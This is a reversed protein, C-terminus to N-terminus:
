YYMHINIRALCYRVERNIHVTADRRGYRHRISRRPTSTPAISCRSAPVGNTPSKCNAPRRPYPRTVARMSRLFRCRGPRRPRYDPLGTGLLNATGKVTPRVATKSGLLAEGILCGEFTGTGVLGESHIPQNLGLKGRAHFMGMM